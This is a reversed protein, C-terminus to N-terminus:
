AEGGYEQWLDDQQPRDLGLTHRGPRNGARAHALMSAVEKAHIPLMLCNWAGAELAAGVLAEQGVPVLVLLPANPVAATRAPYQEPALTQTGANQAEATYAACISLLRCLELTEAANGRTGVILLDATGPAWHDSLSVATAENVSIIEWGPLADRLSALSASDVNFAVARSRRPRQMPHGSASRAEESGLPPDLFGILTVELELTQGAWRHNTDVVVVKNNV